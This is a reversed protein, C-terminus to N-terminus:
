LSVLTLTMVRISLTQIIYIKGKPPPVYGGEGQVTEVIMAATDEPASRQKLLLEVQALSEESCWEPTFKEPDTRHAAWQQYYPFPAVHVGPMLPNFGAGYVTKSTTMAMTGFTRGHYSGQFVIVNQRKTAQRALKISAEVAEAGSNWFFFTDLSPDPMRPKLKEILELMPRHFVINVQGHSLKAAQEQVAKVVDPHCHGLFFM